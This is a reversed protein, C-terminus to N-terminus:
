KKVKKKVTKSYNGYITQTGVKAYARVRVYYTKGKKLKKLTVNLKSGTKKKAGKFKKNKAYSVEYGTAGPTKKLKVILKKGKKNTLKTGQPTQLGIQFSAEKVGTYSGIGTVTVKGQGVTNNNSYALKYDKNITLSVNNYTVTVKPQQAKGDYVTDAATVKALAISVKQGEAGELEKMADAVAKAAEKIEEDTANSNAAAAMAATLASKLKAWSEETYAKSDLKEAATVANGLETYSEDEVNQSVKNWHATLAIDESVVTNEFDFATQADQAFWGEFQYGLKKPDEPKEAKEGGAVKQSEVTSGGDTDFTITYESPDPTHVGTVTVKCVATLDGCKATITTTGEKVGTVVGNEVTAVSPDESEWTIEAAGAPDQVAMANVARVKTEENASISAAATNEYYVKADAIDVCDDSSSGIKDIYIILTSVGTLDIDVFVANSNDGMQTVTYTKEGLLNEATKENKYFEFRAGDRGSKSAKIYDIGIWAQLRKANIESLDFKMTCDTNASIGQDFTKQADDVKMSIATNVKKAGNDCENVHFGGWGSSSNATDLYILGYGDSEPMDTGYVGNAEDVRATLYCYPMNTFEDEKGGKPTVTAKGATASVATQEATVVSLDNVTFETEKKMASDTLTFVARFLDATADLAEYLAYVVKVSGNSKKTSISGKVGDALTVDGIVYTATDYRLTFSGAAMGSKTGQTGQNIAGTITINGSESDTTDAATLSLTMADSSGALTIGSAKIIGALDKIDVANDQNFDAAYTNLLDLTENGALTECLKNIDSVDIVGNASGDVDGNVAIKLTDKVTGDMYLKALYGTAAPATDPEQANYPDEMEFTGGEPLVFMERLQAETTGAPVNYLIKKGENLKVSVTDKLELKIPKEYFGKLIVKTDCWSVMDHGDKINQDVYLCIEKAGTVDVDFYAADQGHELLDSRYKEVGDVRIVAYCGDQTRQKDVDIGAYGQLREINLDSVDFYLETPSNVGFGNEFTTPEGDIYVNLTGGGNDENVHIGNYGAVSKTQDYGIESLQISGSNKLEITFTRVYGNKSTATVTATGPFEAAQKITVTIDDSVPVATVKPISGDPSSANFSYETVDNSFKPLVKEGIKIESLLNTEDEFVVKSGEMLEDEAAHNVPKMRFTYTYINGSTLLYKALTAQGCSATGLGMQAYDVTVVTNDTRKIQYPHKASELAEQTCNLASMELLHDGADILLGDGESDTLAMWRVDTKNGTEQPYVFDTFQEEVTSKWIGVDYGTKRDSYSDSEGRGYWTIHDFTGALQIRNGVRQMNSMKAAPALTSKVVIEGTPYVAYTLRDKSDACSALTRGVSFYVVNTKKDVSIDDIVAGENAGTWKADIAEKMDNDTKARWYNPELPEAILEKGNTKYSTMKGSTKDFSVSWNEGTVTLNEDTDKVADAAFATKTDMQPLGGEAAFDLAFQGEAVVHGEDAWSFQEASKTVFAINLFYEEGAKVSAPVTFPVVIDKSTMAPIDTELTGEEITKGDKVLAWKMTYENANTAIWENNITVTKSELDKLNMQLAQYIRKVEYAEPQLTRDPSIIGNVCFDTNGSKWSDYSKVNGDGDTYTGRNWDGDYGWYTSKGDWNGDADLQPTNYTQDVWDWIYGGQLIGNARIEEWYEKMGGASNGMAHLYECMLYPKQKNKQQKGINPYMESWVDVGANDNWGQYHVPRTEDNTQFYDIEAQLSDGSGTENGPSWMIVSPYNKDRELMNIARDAAAEIYGPLSGPVSYQSRGNHSEVNAEDMIYIGYEDCLEYIAPDEPYHSARIANINLQKMLEIEERMEEETLYHGDEPDNEHRNVGTITIIQGNVRIRADNTGADTIEVERFGVDTQTIEITDATVTKVEASLTKSEGEELTLNKHSLELVDKAETERKLELIMNYLNPKEATWKDPNTFKKTLNVVASDETFAGVEGTIPTETVLNGDRDYLNAEVFLGTTDCEALKRIDVEINLDADTYTEDLDTVVTFDRIEVSDKSMLYVDRFIGCPRVMDQNEIYSGDSWRYVEVTIVNENGESFDLADTINFENRTFSDESYGIYEGNVWLYMASAVGEFDIFVQREAWAPDVTFTKRYTGVPNCETPADGVKYNGYNKGEANYWPYNQNSYIVPDYKWSGDENVYTQWDKPVKIDDWSSDDYSQRNFNEDKAGIRDAPKAAWSFKWDSGNLLQYYSSQTKDAKKAQEVTDYNYFTARASERNVQFIEPHGNWEETQAAFVPLSVIGELGSVPLGTTLMACSMMFATVKKGTQRKMRREKEEGLSNQM